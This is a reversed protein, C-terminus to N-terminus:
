CCRLRRALFHAGVLFVLPPSPETSGVSPFSIIGKQEGQDITRRGSRAPHLMHRLLSLKLSSTHKVTRSMGEKLSGLHACFAIM